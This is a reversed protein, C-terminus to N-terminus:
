ASKGGQAQAQRNVGAVERLVLGFMQLAPDVQADALAQAMPQVEHLSGAYLLRRMVMLFDPPTRWGNAITSRGHWQLATTALFPVTIVAQLQRAAVAQEVCRDLPLQPGAQLWEHMLALLKGRGAPSVVYAATGWKYFQQAPVLEVGQARRASGPPFLRCAVDWLASLHAHSYHPQCELFAIDVGDLPGAIAKAVLEPLQDSLEMDDELVLTFRDAPASELAQLHSLFCAREGPLLPCGAPAPPLNAADIAAHRLVGALGLRALQAEMFAAREPCRDLNIYLGAIPPSM